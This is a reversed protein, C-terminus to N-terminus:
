EFSAASVLSGPKAVTAPARAATARDVANASSRGIALASATSAAFFLFAAALLSRLRIMM